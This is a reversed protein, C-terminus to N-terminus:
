WELCFLVAANVLFPGFLGECLAEKVVRENYPSVLLPQNMKIYVKCQIHEGRARRM